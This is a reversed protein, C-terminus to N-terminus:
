NIRTRTSFIFIRHAQRATNFSGAFRFMFRYFASLKVVYKEDTLYITKEYVMQPNMNIIDNYDDIGWKIDAGTKRLSPQRKIKKVTLKSYADFIFVANPFKQILLSFLKQVEEENLYMLLGEAIILTKEHSPSVKDLWTWDTVSSAISQHNEIEPLLKERLEVVQPFDLDIWKKYGDIRAYRADLGSGLSLVTSKPNDLLFCKTYNEIIDCRISMFVQLKKSIRLNDFDYDIAKVTEGAFVDDIFGQQNMKARGYLPILLTEMEKTLKIKERM